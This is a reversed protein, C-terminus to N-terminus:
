EALRPMRPCEELHGHGLREGCDPCRKSPDIRVSTGFKGDFGSKVPPNNTSNLNLSEGKLTGLENRTRVELEPAGPAPNSTDSHLTPTEEHLTSTNCGHLPHLTPLTAQYRNSRRGHSRIVALYGESEATNVATDVRRKSLGTNAALRDKAPYANGGASNMYTSLTFLVLKDEKPLTDSDRV